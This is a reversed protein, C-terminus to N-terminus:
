IVFPIAAVLPKGCVTMDKKTGEDSLAGCRVVSPPEAIADAFMPEESGGVGDVAFVLRRADEKTKIGSFAHLKLARVM